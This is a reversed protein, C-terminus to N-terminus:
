EGKVIERFQMFSSPMDIINGFVKSFSAMENQYELSFDSLQLLNIISIAKIDFLLKSTVLATSSFSIVAIINKSSGLISELSININDFIECKLSGYREACDSERPHPKIIVPLGEKKLLDILNKLLKIDAMNFIGSRKYAM